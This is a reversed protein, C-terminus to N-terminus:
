GIDKVVTTVAFRPGSVEIACLQYDGRWGHMHVWSEAAFQMQRLKKPTIYDLGAGQKNHVRYKVECFYVIADRTAVIDIECMRTRWNQAVIECGKATLFTAAVAEAKRGVETTTM